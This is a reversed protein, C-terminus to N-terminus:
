PCHHVLIQSMAFKPYQLDLSIKFNLFLMKYLPQLMREQKHYLLNLFKRYNLCKSVLIKPSTLALLDQHLEMKHKLFYLQNLFRFVLKKLVYILTTLFYYLYLKSHFMQEPHFCHPKPM